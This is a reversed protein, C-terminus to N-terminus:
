PTPETTAPKLRAAEDIADLHALLADDHARWAAYMARGATRQESLGIAREHAATTNVWAKRLEDLTTM